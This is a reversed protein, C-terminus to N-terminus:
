GEINKLIGQLQEIDNRLMTKAIDVAKQKDTFCQINLWLTYGISPFWWLQNDYQKQSPKCYYGELQSLKNGHWVWFTKCERKENNM